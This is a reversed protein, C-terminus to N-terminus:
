PKTSKLAFHQTEINKVNDIASIIEEKINKEDKFISNIEALRYLEDNSLSNGKEKLAEREKLMNQQEEESYDDLSNQNAELLKLNERREENKNTLDESEFEKIVSYIATGIRIAVVAAAIIPLIVVM